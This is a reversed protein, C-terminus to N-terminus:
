RRLFDPLDERIDRLAKQDFSKRKYLNHYDVCEVAVGLFTQQVREARTSGRIETQWASERHQLLSRYTSVQWVAVQQSFRYRQKKPLVRFRVDAKFFPGDQPTFHKHLRVSCVTPCKVLRVAAQFVDEDVPHRLIYDVLYNVFYKERYHHDLFRIMNSAYNRDRNLYVVPVKVNLKYPPWTIVVVGPHAPWFKNLFHLMAPLFEPRHVQIVIKM